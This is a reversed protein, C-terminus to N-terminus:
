ILILYLDDTRRSQVFARQLLLLIPHTLPSHATSRTVARRVEASDRGGEPIVRLDTAITYRVHRTCFKTTNPLTCELGSSQLHQDFKSNSRFIWNFTPSALDPHLHFNVALFVGSTLVFHPYLFIHVRTPYWQHHSVVRLHNVWSTSTTLTGYPFQIDDVQWSISHRWLIWTSQM